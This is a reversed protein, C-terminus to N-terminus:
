RRQRAAQKGSAGSLGEWGALFLRVTQVAWGDLEAESMPTGMGMARRQPVAITMQLFQAAAFEAIKQRNPRDHAQLLASIREIAEQSGPRHAFLEALEPFRGAEAIILRHLAIAEPQLAARLVARSLRTLIEALDDGVFLSAVDPPRLGEVVRRMVAKFVGAKDGIRDYVTRKSVGAQRALLEISTEGYGNAFFLESAVELIYDELLEAEERSPRGLRRQRRKM